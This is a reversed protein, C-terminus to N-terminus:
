LFSDTPIVAIFYNKVLAERGYRNTIDNLTKFIDNEM